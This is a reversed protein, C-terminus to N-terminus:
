ITHWKGTEGKQWEKHEGSLPLYYAVTCVSVRLAVFLFLLSCYFVIWELLSFVNWGWVRVCKRSCFCSVIGAVVFLFFYFPFSVWHTGGAGCMFWVSYLRRSHSSQGTRDGGRLALAISNWMGRKEDPDTSCYRWVIVWVNVSVCVCAHM